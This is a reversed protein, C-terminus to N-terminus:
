SDYAKSTNLTVCVSTSKPIFEIHLLHERRVDLNLRNGPSPGPKNKPVYVEVDARSWTSEGEGSRARSGGPTM